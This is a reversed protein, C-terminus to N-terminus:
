VAKDLAELKGKLDQTIKNVNDLDDEMKEKLAVYFWLLGKKTM